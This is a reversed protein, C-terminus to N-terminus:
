CEVKGLSECNLSVIELSCMTAMSAHAVQHPGQLNMDGTNSFYTV